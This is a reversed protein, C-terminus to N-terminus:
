LWRLNFVIMIAMAIFLVALGLKVTAVHRRFFIGMQESTVGFIALLFV